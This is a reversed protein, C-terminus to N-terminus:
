PQIVYAGVTIASPKRGPAFVRARVTTNSNILVEGNPPVELSSEDPTSGDITYRITSGAMASTIVLTVDTAYTGPTVSFVPAAPAWAGGITFALQPTWRDTTSADGFLIGSHSRGWTWIQGTPLAVISRQGVEFTSAGAPIIVPTPTPKPDTTGNGLEGNGNLGWALLTGDTRMVMTHAAGLSVQPAALGPLELPVTSGAPLGTGLQGADNLGWVFLRGDRTRAVAHRGDADISEVDSVGAILTPVWRDDTTGDGLQGFENNGWAYLQGSTTVAYSADVGAAIASIPPLGAVPLPLWSDTTTNQGLQGFSGSGWAYVQGSSTLALSHEYGAKVQVVNSLADVPWPYHSDWTDGAGLQGRDNAGWGFLHGDYTLAFTHQWSASVSMVGTLAQVLVPTQRYTNFTSDGLQGRWNEGWTYVRGDPTSLAGHLGGDAVTGPSMATTLAYAASVPAAVFSGKSAIVRLTYDGVFLSSGPTAQAALGTAPDSGDLTYRILADPVENNITVTTGPAYTGSPLSLTPPPVTITFAASALASGTPSYDPHCARAHLTQSFQVEIPGTYATGSTCNSLAFAAYRFTAGPLPHPALTVTVSGQFSGGAPSMVPPALVYDFNRGNVISPTWATKFAAVSIVTPGTVVIEGTYLTSAETPDLPPNSRTGLNYRIVAGATPTSLTVSLPGTLGAAGGPTITPTEPRLTYTGSAVNSPPMGAKFAKVRLTQTFDILLFAGSAVVPDAETPEGGNRTYRITAGSTVTTVQVNFPINSFTQGFGISPTAVKLVFNPETIPTPVARPAQTGDGLEHSDNAGWGYLVRDGTLALFSITTAHIRVVNTLEPVAVPVLQNLGGWSWVTGDSKLALTQLSGADIAIVDTLVHVAVPIRSLTNTNNGLLGAAGVAYLTRDALRVVTHTAGGSVEVADTINHMQTLSSKGVNTNDGLQGSTNAGCSWVTRDSKILHSTNHGAGIAVVGSALLRPTSINLSANPDCLAFSANSGWGYVDGNDLLALSHNLGASVASVNTWTSVQVPRSRPPTISTTGDGIQGNANYGFAWLRRDATIALSHDTGGALAVVGTLDNVIQPVPEFTGTEGNGLPGRNNSGWSLLRGDPLSALGHNVGLAIAPAALEGDLTYAASTVASQTASAHFARAKLTFNGLTITGGNAVVPDSNIPDRGDLTYRITAHPQAHVTVVTGPAYAGAPESFTPASLTVNYTTAISSDSITYGDQCTYARITTTTNIELPPTYPLGGSCDSLTGSTVYRVGFGPYGPTIAVSVSGTYAGGAPSVTPAAPKHTYTATRVASSSWGANFTAAKVIRTPWSVSFGGVPYPTSNALTPDPTSNLDVGTTYRIQGLGSVSMTVAVSQNPAVTATLPTVNPLNAALNYTQREVNSPPMGTKFAKLSLTQTFSVTFNGVPMVPDSETPELGNQTYRIIPGDPTIPETISVAATVNSGTHNSVRTITANLLQPTAVKWIYNDVSIQVPSHKHLNNVGEGVEYWGNNGWASVVGSESVVLSHNEGAGVDAIGTLGPVQLPTSREVDTGDGLSGSTNAGWTWVTGDAKLAVTHTFGSATRRIDTLSEILVPTTRDGTSSGIGLQGSDTDGAAMLRGDELRIISFASGASADVANTIGSMQVAVSRSTAPPGAGLQSSGDAGIGWVQGNTKVFLSFASGAAIAKVGTMIVQPSPFLLATNSNGQQGNQNRGWSYVDGNSHLALSHYQGAAIAVIQDLALMVPTAADTFNGTGLAGHVNDGFAYVAGTPMLVLGHGNGAAVAIAGSVGPMSLPRPRTGNSGGVGLDGSTQRGWAWVPGVPQAFFSSEDSAALRRAVGGFTSVEV